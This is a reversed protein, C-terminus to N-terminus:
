EKGEKRTTTKETEGIETGEMEIMGQRGEKDNM